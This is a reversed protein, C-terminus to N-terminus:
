DSTQTYSTTKNPPLPSPAGAFGCPTRFVFLFFNDAVCTVCICCSTCSLGVNVVAHETIITIIDAIDFSLLLELFEYSSICDCM